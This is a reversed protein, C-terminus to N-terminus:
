PGTKLKKAASGKGDGKATLFDMDPGGENMLAALADSGGLSDLLSPPKAAQATAAPDKNEPYALSRARLKNDRLYAGFSVITGVEFQGIVDKQLFADMEYGISKLEPSDIFGFGKDSNYSKIMGVFTGLVIDEQGGTAMKGVCKQPGVLGTADFLDKCQLKGGYLYATFKVEAGVQFDLVHKQSLFVDGEHEAKLTDCAIFGFGKEPNYSKIVGMYEGLIHQDPPKGKPNPPGVHKFHCTDGFKCWGAKTYFRCPENSPPIPTGGLAMRMQMMQFANRQEENMSSVDPMTPMVGPAGGGMASMMAMMPNMAAMAGMGGSMAAMMSAMDQTGAAPGESGPPAACAELDFARPENQETLTTAFSVTSGEKFLSMQNRHVIVDVGFVAQLEACHINAFGTQANMAKITGSCRRQTLAVTPVYTLDPCAMNVIDPAIEPRSKLIKSIVATLSDDDMCKLIGILKVPPKAM